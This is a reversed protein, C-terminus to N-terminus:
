PRGSRRVTLGSRQKIPVIAAAVLGFVAGVAVQAFPNHLFRQANTYGIGAFILATLGTQLRELVSAWHATRHAKRAQKKTADKLLQDAVRNGTSLDM